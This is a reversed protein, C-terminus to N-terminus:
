PANWDLWNEIKLGEIDEFHKLNNTVLIYDNQICYTGILLDADDVTKSPKMNKFQIYITIAADISNKDISDIGEISYISEFAKIKKAANLYILGRMTEFCVIPPIKIISGENKEITIKERIKKNGKLFHSVTNTDLAYRKM